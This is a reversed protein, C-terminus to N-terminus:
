GGVAQIPNLDDWGWGKRLQRGRLPPSSLSPFMDGEGASVGLQLRDPMPLFADVSPSKMGQADLAPSPDGWGGGKRVWGGRPPTDSHVM